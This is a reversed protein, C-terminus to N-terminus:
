PKDGLGLLQMVLPLVAEARATDFNETVFMRTPAASERRAREGLQRREFASFTSFTRRLLPLLETFVEGPLTTVWEDLVGWLIDDHLLILGSERL